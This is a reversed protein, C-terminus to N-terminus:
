NLLDIIQKRQFENITEHIFSQFILSQGDKALAGIEYNIDIFWSYLNYKSFTKYSM